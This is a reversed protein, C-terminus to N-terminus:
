AEPQVGLRNFGNLLPTELGCKFVSLSNVHLDTHFHLEVQVSERSTKRREGSSLFDWLVSRPM